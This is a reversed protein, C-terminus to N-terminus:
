CTRPRRPPATPRSPTSRSAWTPRSRRRGAGRARAADARGRGDVVPVGLVERLVVKYGWVGILGVLALSLVGGGVFLGLRAAALPRFLSLNSIRDAQMEALVRAEENKQRLLDLRTDAMKIDREIRELDRESDLINAIKQEVDDHQAERLQLNSRM